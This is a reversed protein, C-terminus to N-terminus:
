WSTAYQPGVIHVYGPGSMDYACLTYGVLINCNLSYHDGEVGGVCVGDLRVLFCGCM